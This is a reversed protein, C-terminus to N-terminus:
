KLKEFNNKGGCLFSFFFTENESQAKHNLDTSSGVNPKAITQSVSTDEVKTISDAKTGASPISNPKM